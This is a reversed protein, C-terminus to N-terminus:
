ILKVVAADGIDQFIVDTPETLIYVLVKQFALQM